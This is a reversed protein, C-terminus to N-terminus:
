LVCPFHHVCTSWMSTMDCYLDGFVGLVWKLEYVHCYVIQYYKGRTILVYCWMYVNCTTM